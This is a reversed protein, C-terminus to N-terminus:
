GALETAPRLRLHAEVLGELWADVSAPVPKTGLMWSMAVSAPVGLIEAVTITPWHLIALCENYLAPTM